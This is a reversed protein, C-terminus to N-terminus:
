GTSTRRLIKSPVQNGWCREAQAKTEGLVQVLIQGSAEGGAAHPSVFYYKGSRTAWKLNFLDGWRHRWRVTHSVKQWDPMKCSVILSRPLEQPVTPSVNRWDLVHAGSNIERQRSQWWVKLGSWSVIFNELKGTSKWEIWRCCISNYKETSKISVILRPPQWCRSQRHRRNANQLVGGAFM